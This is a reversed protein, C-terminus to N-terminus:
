TGYVVMHVRWPLPSADILHQRTSLHPVDLSSPAPRQSPAAGERLLGVAEAVETTKYSGSYM